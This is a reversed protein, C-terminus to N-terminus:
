YASGGPQHTGRCGGWGAQMGSLGWWHHPAWSGLQRGRGAERPTPSRCGLTSPSSAQQELSGRGSDTAHPPTLPRELGALSGDGHPQLRGPPCSGAWSGMTGGQSCQTGVERGPGEADCPHAASYGRGLKHHGRRTLTPAHHTPTAALAEPAPPWCPAAHCPRCTRCRPMAAHRREWNPTCCGFLCAVWCPPLM